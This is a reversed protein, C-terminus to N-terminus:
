VDQVRERTKYIIWKLTKYWIEIRYLAGKRFEIPIAVSQSELTAVRSILNSILREGQEKLLWLGEESKLPM